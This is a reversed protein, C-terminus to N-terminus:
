KKDTFMRLNMTKTVVKSFISHIIDAIRQSLKRIRILDFLVIRVRDILSCVLFISLAFGFTMLLMVLVNYDSLFAFRYEIKEWINTQLHIVYVGFTAPAFFEIIRIMRKVRLSAFLLFLSVAGILITPSSYDILVSSFDTQWGLKNNMLETFFKFLWTVIVCILYILLLRSKKVRELSIYKKIYAGIM